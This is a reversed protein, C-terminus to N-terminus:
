PRSQTVKLNIAESVKYQDHDMAAIDTLPDVTAEKSRPFIQNWQAVRGLLLNYFVSGLQQLFLNSKSFWSNTNWFIM